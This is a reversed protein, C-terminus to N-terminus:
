SESDDGSAGGIGVDLVEVCFSFNERKCVVEFEMGRLESLFCLVV